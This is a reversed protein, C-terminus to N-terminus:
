MVLIIKGFHRNAQMHAQAAVADDLKFTRDIPLDIRGAAIDDWLDASARRGIERVEDVTRTRFTVGIYDIRKMSHLDFDFEAANGALRGVNIIRGCIATARMTANILNGSIMDVVVDAGKGNTAQLVQEVWAPDRTNVAVDAGFHKLKDRREAHTSSGIVVRAGKLKAIQMGAIGMGSSAGQILVNDGPKMKGATMLAHHMTTLATPLTAAREFTMSDPIKFVRGWDTVAYEAYGGTRGGCAVRDGPKFDRVEAGVEVVEGAWEIGIPIGLKGHGLSAKAASLDARNLAAARVRVLVEDATPRPEPVDRRLELGNATAIGAKM